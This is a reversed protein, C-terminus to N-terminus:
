LEAHAIMNSHQLLEEEQPSPGGGVVECVVDELLFKASLHPEASVEEICDEVLREVVCVGVLHLGCM